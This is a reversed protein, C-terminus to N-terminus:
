SFMEDLLQDHLSVGSQVAAGDLDDDENELMALDNVHTKRVPPAGLGDAWDSSLVTEESGFEGEGAGGSNIHNIVLLADIPTVFGDGNVDLYPPTGPAPLTLQTPNTPDNLYNVVQLVDIPSVFGDGSVDLNNTGNTFPNGQLSILHDEVEGDIAAGLPSAVAAADTSVRVRAYTNGAVASSPVLFSVSTTPLTAAQANLVQEASAFTGDGNYDIWMSVYATSGTTNTVSIDASAQFAAFVSSTLVFGDDEDANDLKADPDPTATAGLSLGSVVTHRPGNDAATSTYPAPADGYDLGEGLFVTLTTSGDSQNPKLPNGAMDLIASIDNAGIGSIGQPGDILLRSGFQTITM